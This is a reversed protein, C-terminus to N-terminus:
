DLLVQPHLGESGGGTSAKYSRAAILRKECFPVGEERTKCAEMTGRGTWWTRNQSCWKGIGKRERDKSRPEQHHTRMKM